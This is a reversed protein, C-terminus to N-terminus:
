KLFTMDYLTGNAHIEKLLGSRDVNNICALYWMFGSFNNKLGCLYHARRLHQLDHTELRPGTSCFVIVNQQKEELCASNLHLLLQNAKLWSLTVLHLSMDRQQSNNWHVLVSNFDLVVHQDLVFSVDDDDDDWQFTVQVWWWIASFFQWKANFLLWESVLITKYSKM